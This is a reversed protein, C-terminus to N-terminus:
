EEVLPPIDLIEIDYPESEVDSSLVVGNQNLSYPRADGVNAVVDFVITYDVKDTYYGYVTRTVTVVYTAKRGSFSKSKQSPTFSASLTPYSTSSSTTSFELDSIQTINNTSDNHSIVAYVVVSYTYNYASWVQFKENRIVTSNTYINRAAYTPVAFLFSFMAFICIFKKVKKKM